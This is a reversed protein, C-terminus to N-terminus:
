SMPVNVSILLTVFVFRRKQTLKGFLRLLASGELFHEMILCRSFAFGRNIYQRLDAKLLNFSQARLISRSRMIM